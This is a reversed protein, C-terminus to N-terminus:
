KTGPLYRYYVEMMLTSLCTAYITADAGVSNAHGGPNTWSGDQQQSKAILEQYSDNFERWHRLTTIGRM